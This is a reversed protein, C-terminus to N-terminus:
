KVIKLLKKPIDTNEMMGIFEEAGPGFAFVPVCVATHKGVGFAGKIQGTKMDGGPVSFGGTEHDATVVILTNQDKVAFELAKGITRDFDLMEQVLFQTDNQHSGWDIQSGEVMLFFGDKDKDLITLATETAVELMENREVKRPNHEQATLGALKGETVKAIEKLDTKVQYGKAQLEDVLNRGDERDTFHKYGGGIFVDIDSKLFDDAIAEYMKRSPQHAVFSAPTAHTISSTSVIGTAKGQAELTERINTIENNDADLGVTGNNTKKGTSLATGGAASDTVYKDASQTFSFGIHRFNKLYLNGGNASYGAFVHTMGMGDGIMFIINKPRKKKFKAPYQQVPYFDDGAYLKVSDAKSITKYNEQANVNGIALAISIVLLFTGIKKLIM